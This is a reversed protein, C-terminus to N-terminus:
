LMRPIPAMKLTPVTMVLNALLDVRLCGRERHGCLIIVLTHCSAIFVGWIRAWRSIEYGCGETRGLHLQRPLLRGEESTYIYTHMYHISFEYNHNGRPSKCSSWYLSIEYLERRWRAWFYFHATTSSTENGVKQLWVRGKLSHVLNLCALTVRM